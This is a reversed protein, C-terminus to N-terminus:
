TDSAGAVLLLAHGVYFIFDIAICSLLRKGLKTSTLPGICPSMCTICLQVHMAAPVHVPLAGSLSGQRRFRFTQETKGHDCSQVPSQLAM